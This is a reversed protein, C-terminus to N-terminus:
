FDDKYKLTFGVITSLTLVIMMFCTLRVFLVARNLKQMTEQNQCEKLMKVCLALECMFLCLIWGICLKSYSAYSAFYVM